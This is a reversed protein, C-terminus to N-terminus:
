QEAIINLIVQIDSASLKGDDNLDYAKEYVDDTMANLVVQIDSASVKGDGNLDGEIGGEVTIKVTKAVEQAISSEDSATMVINDLALEYEGAAVTSAINLTLKAVAVKKGAPAATETESFLKNETVVIQSTWNETTEASALTIGEPLVLDAQWNIIELTNSMLVNVVVTQGATGKAGDSLELYNNARKIAANTGICTLAAMLMFLFRRKM